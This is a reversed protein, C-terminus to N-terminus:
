WSIFRKILSKRRMEPSPKNDEDLTLNVNSSSRFVRNSSFRRSLSSRKQKITTDESESTEIKFRVFSQRLSSRAPRLNKCNPIKCISKSCVKAHEWIMEWLKECTECGGNVTLLCDESHKLFTLIEEEKNMETMKFTTKETISGYLRDLLTIM